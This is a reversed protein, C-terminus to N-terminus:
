VSETMFFGVKQTMLVFLSIVVVAQWQLGDQTPQIFDVDECM